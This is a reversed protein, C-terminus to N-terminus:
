NVSHFLKASALHTPWGLNTIAHTVKCKKSKIKSYGNGRFGSTMGRNRACLRTYRAIFGNQAQAPALGCLSLDVSKDLESKSLIILFVRLNIYRQSMDMTLNEEYTNLTHKSAEM